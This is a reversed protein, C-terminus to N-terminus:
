PRDWGYELGVSFSYRLLDSLNVSTDAAARVILGISGDLRVHADLYPAMEPRVLTYDSPSAGYKSQGPVDQSPLFSGSLALGLRSGIVLHFRFADDSPPCISWLGTLFVYMLDLSAFIGPTVVSWHQEADTASSISFGTALAGNLLHGGVEGTLVVDFSKDDNPELPVAGAGVLTRVFHPKGFTPCAAGPPERAAAIGPVCLAAVVSLVFPPLRASM